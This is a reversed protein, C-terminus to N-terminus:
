KNGEATGQRKKLIILLISYIGRLTMVPPLDDSKIHSCQIDDNIGVMCVIDTYFYIAFM